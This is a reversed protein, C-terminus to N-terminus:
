KLVSGNLGQDAKEPDLATSTQELLLPLDSNNRLSITDFIVGWSDVRPLKIRGKDLTFNPLFPEENKQFTNGFCHVIVCIPPVVCDSDTLSCDRFARFSAFGEFEHFFFQGLRTPQFTITFQCSGQGPLEAESPEISFEEHFPSACIDNFSDTDDALRLIRQPTWKFHMAQSTHNQVVLSRKLGFKNDTVDLGLQVVEKHHFVCKVAKTILADTPTFDIYAPDVSIPPMHLVTDEAHRLSTYEEFANSQQPHRSVQLPNDAFLGSVINKLHLTSLPHPQEEVDHCTGFLSLFQPETNPSLLTLRRYFHGASSPSFGIVIRVKSRPGVSSSASGNLLPFVTTIRTQYGSNTIKNSGCILQYPTEEESRNELFLVRQIM